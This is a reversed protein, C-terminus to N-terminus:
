CSFRNRFELRNWWHLGIGFDYDTQNVAYKYILNYFTYLLYFANDLEIIEELYM